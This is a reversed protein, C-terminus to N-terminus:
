YVDRQYRGARRLEKLRQEAADRDLGAQEAIVDIIGFLKKQLRNWEDGKGKIAFRILEHEDRHEQDAWTM